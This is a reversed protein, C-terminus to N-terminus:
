LHIRYFLFEVFYKLLLFYKRGNCVMDAIKKKKKSSSKDFTSHSTDKHPQYKKNVNLYELEQNGCNMLREGRTLGDRIARQGM